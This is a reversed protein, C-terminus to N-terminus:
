TNPLQSLPAREPRDCVLAGLQCYLEMQSMGTAMATDMAAFMTSYDINKRINM